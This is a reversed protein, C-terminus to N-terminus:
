REALLCSSVTHLILVKGQAMSADQGMNKKVYDAEFFYLNLSYVSSHKQFIYAWSTNSIRSWTILHMVNSFYHKSVVSLCIVQVPRDGLIVKGGYKIAEEYAM